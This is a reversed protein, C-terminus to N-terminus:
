NNKNLKEWELFKKIYQLDNLELKKNELAIRAAQLKNTNMNKM